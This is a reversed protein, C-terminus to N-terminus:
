RGYLEQLATYAARPRRDIDVIGWWDENAFGDPAVGGNPFGGPDQAQPPGSKWWEDSWEFPTGGLCPFGPNRASLQARIEATQAALAAAQAAEDPRRARDDYADAGYESMLFPKRIGTRQAAIRWDAFRQFFGPQSYVNLGWVDIADLRRLDADTPLAGTPGFSTAVPHDPDLRRIDRAIEDVRTYCADGACSHFLDNRNWENGVMWMLVAPHHRLATVAAAYDDKATAAVTVIALIGNRLAEDLVAADVPRYTKITNIFAQRMLPLDRGAARAFADPGPALGGKDAPSWSVGRVDYPAGAVSGDPNRRRVILQYGVVSASVV